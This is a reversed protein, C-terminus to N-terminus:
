LSAAALAAASACTTIRALKKPTQPTKKDPKVVSKHPLVSQLVSPQVRFLQQQRQLVSPQQRCVAAASM